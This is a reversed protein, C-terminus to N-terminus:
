SYIYKGGFHSAESLSNDHLAACNENGGLYRCLMCRACTYGAQHVPVAGGPVRVVAGLGTARSFSEAVDRILEADFTTQEM